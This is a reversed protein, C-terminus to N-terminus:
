DPTEPPCVPQGPTSILPARAEAGYQEDMLPHRNFFLTPTKYAPPKFGDGGGHVRGRRAALGFYFYWPFSTLRLTRGYRYM